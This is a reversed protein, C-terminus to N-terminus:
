LPAATFSIWTVNQIYTQWHPISDTIIGKANSVMTGNPYKKRTKRTWHCVELTSNKNNDEDISVIVIFTSGIRWRCIVLQLLLWEAELKTREIAMSHGCSEYALFLYIWNKRLSIRCISWGTAAWTKLWCFVYVLRTKNALWVILFFQETRLLSPTAHCLAYACVFAM